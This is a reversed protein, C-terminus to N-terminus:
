ATKGRAHLVGGTVVFGLGRCLALIKGHGVKMDEQTALLEKDM